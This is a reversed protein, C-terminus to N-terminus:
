QNDLKNIGSLYFVLRKSALFDNYGYDLETKSLWTKPTFHKCIKTYITTLHSLDSSYQAHTFSEYELNTFLHLLITM